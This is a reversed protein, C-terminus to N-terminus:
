PRWCPKQGTDIYMPKDFQDRKESFYQVTEPFFASFNPFEQVFAKRCPTHFDEPQIKPYYRQCCNVIRDFFHHGMFMDYTISNFTGQEMRNYSNLRESPLNKLRRLRMDIGVSLDRHVIRKIQLTNDLEFLVNQGHPELMYGFEQFCKIWQHIIPLMIKKLIFDLPDHKGILDLLLPPKDPTFFDHGYLAFGPLLSRTEQTLPFPRMDRVLFGWNEHRLTKTELNVFSIGVVERLFAFRDDFQDIGQELELSVNVAQEIVEDRMKRGYRSIRFPFHVKLAHPTTNEELVNVTRTSSSPAVHLKEIPLGEKKLLNFYSDRHNTLLIQPHPCFIVRDHQLYKKLLDSPPHATYVNVHHRAISYPTLDFYPLTSNPQFQPHAETYNAYSSYTRTGENCYRDLYNLSPLM